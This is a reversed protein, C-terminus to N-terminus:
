NEGYFVEAFHSFDIKNEEAHKRECEVCSLLLNKPDLHWAINAERPDLPKYVLRMERGPLILAECLDCKRGKRRVLKDLINDIAEFKATNM